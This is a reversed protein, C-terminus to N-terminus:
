LFIKEDGNKMSLELKKIIKVVDLSHNLNKNNLDKSNIRKFIHDYLNYMAFSQDMLNAVGKDSAIEFNNNSFRHKRLPYSKSLLGEQLFSLRGKEGWLDLYIERYKRFNVFQTLLTSGSCFGIAFPFNIDNKNPSENSVIKNALSRVWSVDGLFMSALDILHSGNNNIGNGYIGFASQIRGFDKSFSNLINLLKKDFRRPFNVEAIIKKNKCIDLIKLGESVDNALPKELVVAKLNPLKNLVDIREEAPIALVAVEFEDLNNLEEINQKVEPVCWQEKAKKLADLKKDVVARLTFKPHDKLVQIHTPYKIWNKMCKDDSYNAAINGFGILLTKLM